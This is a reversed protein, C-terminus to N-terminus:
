VIQTPILTSSLGLSNANVRTNTVRYIRTGNTAPALVPVGNFTVQNGNVLGQFVNPHGPSGDFTGSGTNIIPPPPSFIPAPAFLIPSSTPTANPEDILLFADSPGDPTHANTIPANFRLTLNTTPVAAGLPLPTGGTCRLL